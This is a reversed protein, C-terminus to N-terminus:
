RAAAAEDRGDRAVAITGTMDRQGGAGRGVHLAAAEKGTPHETGPLKVNFRNTASFKNAM